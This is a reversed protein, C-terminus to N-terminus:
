VDRWFSRDIVLPRWFWCLNEFNGGAEGGLAAGTHGM